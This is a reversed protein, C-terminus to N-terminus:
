HRLKCPHLEAWWQHCCWQLRCFPLSAPTTHIMMGLVHNTLDSSEAQYFAEIGMMLIGDCVRSRKTKFCRQQLMLLSSPLQSNKLCLDAEMRLFWWDSARKLDRGLSLPLSDVLCSVVPIRDTHFKSHHHQHHHGTESSSSTCSSRKRIKLEQTALSVQCPQDVCMHMSWLLEASPNTIVNVQEGPQM